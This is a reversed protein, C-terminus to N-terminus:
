SPFMERLDVKKSRERYYSFIEEAWAVSSPDESFLDMSSDYLDTDKKFLGFSLHKDTVTLGIRIAEDTLWIIFNPFGALENLNKAYPERTLLEVADRSVVLEVPIGTIVREALFQAIGPSATSSIGHIYTAGKLMELYHSYVSFMDTTSDQLTESVYLDGLSSLFRPPIDELDHELWFTRHEDIGGILKIFGEVNAAVVRGLPTLRYEYNAPEILGQNELSRIKPILAQSTSGTVERLRGLSARGTVLALLVQIKLRSSYISHILKQHKEYIGLSNM